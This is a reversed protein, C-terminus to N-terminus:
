GKVINKIMNCVQFCLYGLFAGFTNLIVDDIDCSGVLTVLQIAEVVVSMVMGYFVVHGGKRLAPSMVPLIFGFPFFGIVNGALNLFVNWIGIQDRYNWFRKIELFPILNFQPETHVQASRGYWEAFFLFYILLFIYAIM